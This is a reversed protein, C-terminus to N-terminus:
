EGRERRLVNASSLLELTLLVGFLGDLRSAAVTAVHCSMEGLFATSCGLSLSSSSASFSNTVLGAFLECVLFRARFNRAWLVIVSM